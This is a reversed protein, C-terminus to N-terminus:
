VQKKDLTQRVAKLLDTMQYPKAVFSSAGSALVEKMEGDPSYGSAIIVKLDPDLNLLEKLCKHGGMGPMGLDLIVLDIEDGQRNYVNLAEEGSHASFVNYGYHELMETAIDRIWEEDDVVLINEHGPKLSAAMTKPASIEAMSEAVPLYIKFTTGRGAESYCTIHGGHSKIIGYASALGLGTGKGIEKTTFFPDFINEVTEKDIGQGTDSVTLLVYEGPNVELNTWSDEGDLTINETEIVLRGGEPMADRANTGLNMLIQQLQGSDANVARLDEALHLEIDIMRPITRQLLNRVEKIEHNIDIPRRKTEVKRSFTLLQLVLQAAREVADEIAKLERHGPDNEKRNMLLIQTYGNIAQLLNNFDHAIGGALTGVAEMKQAQQLKLELRKFETIDRLLNITAPRGEWTILAANLQVWIEEGSKNVIRFSYTSPPREGRLRRQYRELVMKRDEDHILNKFPIRNLEDSSYGSLEITKPNPFKVVEDQAIFIADNATEVLLRYKEESERLAAEAKKEETIDICIGELCGKEPYIRATFRVWVISDDVRFFRAEFNSIAGNEDLLALMRERTGPDVYHDAVVFEEICKERNDYGYIRAFRDNCELVKGDSIRTQFLGVQANNFINRYKDESLRLAEEAQKRETIDRAIGQIAYPKNDRYLLSGTSEVIVYEGDKRRVKYEILNKQYGKEEIDKVAQLANLLQDQPLLSGFNLSSIDEKTYGLLDLAAPNGDLFNGELDHIYVCDLSRDFLAKYREDSERLGEEAQKRRTIDQVHSIFYLPNGEADRVISSSVQGWILRGQKHFYRKEFISNEIEGSMSRRIFEPSVDQDEPYAIDNVTIGELEERSYGFIESMRSNVKMLNGNLDVLCVGDNANEFAHRFREESERLAEETNRRETDVQATYLAMEITIKLDRDQFPKLIYGFPYTLKAQELRGDDAYGTVFVVPIGFRSRIVAASAIGDMEGKLAIDMLVLDPRDQEAKIIAGEGSNTSACVCYGLAELSIKLDRVVLADDEVIMIRAPKM